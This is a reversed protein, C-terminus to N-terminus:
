MEKGRLYIYFCGHVCDPKQPRRYVTVKKGRRECEGIVFRTGRSQGDWFAIVADAYAIIELNRHLPAARGYRRYDPLFETLKMGTQCAYERACADIGKAGGSVLETAYAPLYQALDKVSLGRSGVVAIKM